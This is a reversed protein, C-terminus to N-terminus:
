GVRGNARVVLAWTLRDCKHRHHQSWNPLGDDRESRRIHLLPHNFRAAPLCVTRLFKRDQEFDAAEAGDGMWTRAIM